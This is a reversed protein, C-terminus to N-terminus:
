FPTVEASPEILPAETELPAPTPTSMPYDPVPTLKPAPTKVVRIEPKPGQLPKSVDAVIGDAERILQRVSKWNLRSAVGARRALALVAGECDFNQKYIDPYVSLWIGRADAALLVPQYVVHVPTGIEVRDFLDVIDHRLFRVCGHSAYHKISAPVLTGHFGFSGNGFGIWRVGLPNDPGAPVVTKVERGQEAMEKQISAPVHWAPNKQMDVVRSDGIKVQWDSDPMSVGVPYHRLLRGRRVLYVEAEPVNLVIGSLEPGFSPLVQRQDILITEGYELGDRLVAASPKLIRVPHVTFRV